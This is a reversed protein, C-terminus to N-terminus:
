VADTYRMKNTFILRQMKKTRRIAHKYVFEIIEGLGIQQLLNMQDKSLSLSYDHIQDFSKSEPHVDGANLRHSGDVVLHPRVFLHLRAKRLVSSVAVSRAIM